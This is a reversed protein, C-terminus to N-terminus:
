FGRSVARRQKRKNTGGEAPCGRLEPPGAYAAEGAVSQGRGGAALVSYSNLSPSKAGYHQKCDTIINKLEQRHVKERKTKMTWYFTLEKLASAVDIKSLDKEGADSM